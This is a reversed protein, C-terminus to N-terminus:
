VENFEEEFKYHKLPFNYLFLFKKGIILSDILYHPFINYLRLLWLHCYVVAGHAKCAAYIFICVCM